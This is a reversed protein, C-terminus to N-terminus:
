RRKRKRRPPPPPAKRRPDKAEELKAQIDPPPALRRIAAQQGITWINTTCWYLILGAPFGIIFPVFIFPLALMIMRQNRDTVTSLSVLSAVLQSAVYVVILVALEAGEPSAGLNEIFWWGRDGGAAVTADLEHNFETSRLAIFLAIFVPLQLLLPLCSAFPNVNNEKYFRMMEQQLRQRDEKYKEQLEKLQPQLAQLARMSRLQRITLPLITLRTVFTLAIISAGWGFGANNHFFDLVAFAADVLPSLPGGVALPLIM